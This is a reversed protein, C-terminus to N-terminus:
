LRQEYMPTEDDSFDKAPTEPKDIDEWLIQRRTTAAFDFIPFLMVSDMHCRASGSSTEHLIMTIFALKQDLSPGLPLLKRKHDM